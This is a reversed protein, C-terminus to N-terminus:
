DRRPLTDVNDHADLSQCRKMVHYLVLLSILVKEKTARNVIKCNILFGTYDFFIIVVDCKGTAVFRDMKVKILFPVDDTLKHDLFRLAPCTFISLKNGCAFTIHDDDKKIIGTKRDVTFDHITGSSVVKILGSSQDHIM